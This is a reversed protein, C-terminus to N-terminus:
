AGREGAPRAVVVDDRRLDPPPELHERRGVAAVVLAEVHRGGVTPHPIETAVTHEARELLAQLPQTEVLDIEDEDMVGIVVPVLCDSLGIGRELLEPTLADYDDIPAPIFWASISASKTRWVSISM